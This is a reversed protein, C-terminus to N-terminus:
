WDHRAFIDQQCASDRECTTLRLSRYRRCLTTNNIIHCSTFPATFYINSLASPRSHSEQHIQLSSVAKDKNRHVHMSFTGSGRHYRQHWLPSSETNIISPVHDDKWFRWLFIDTDPLNTCWGLEQSQRKHHCDISNWMIQPEWFLATCQSTSPSWARSKDICLPHHTPM